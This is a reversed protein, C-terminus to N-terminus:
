AGPRGSPGTDAVSRAPLERPDIEVMGDRIRCDLQWLYEGKCPGLICLGSAPEFLAGHTACRLLRGDSDMYANDEWNLPVGLHPCRNLFAQVQQPATRLLIISRGGVAFGRAQGAQLETLPCLALPSSM